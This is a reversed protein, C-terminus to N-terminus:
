KREVGSLEADQQGISLEPDDSPSFERRRGPSSEDVRPTLIGIVRCVRADQQTCFL